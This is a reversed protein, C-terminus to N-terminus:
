RLRRVRILREGQDIADLVDMGSLVHGVVPDGDVALDPRYGTLLRWSGGVTDGGQAVLTVASARLRVPAGRRRPHAQLPGDRARGPGRSARRPRPRAHRGLRRRRLGRGGGRALGHRRLRRQGRPRPRAARAGARGERAARDRAIRATDRSSCRARRRAARKEREAVLAAERDRQVRVMHQLRNVTPEDLGPREALWGWLEAARGYHAGGTLTNAREQAARGRLSPDLDSQVTELLAAAADHRNLFRLAQAWVIRDRATLPEFNAIWRFNDFVAATTDADNKRSKKREEALLRVHSHAEDGRRTLEEQHAILATWATASFGGPQHPDELGQLVGWGQTDALGPALDRGGGKVNVGAPWTSSAVGGPEYWWILAHVAPLPSGDKAGPLLSLPLAMEWSCASTTRVARAVVQELVRDHGMEQQRRVIIHPRDHEVADYEISLTGPTLVGQPAQAPAFYLLARAGIPWAHDCELALLLTGARQKLYASVGRGLEVRAADDWEARQVNGDMGDKTLPIGAPVVVTTESADARAVPPFTALALFTAFLLLRPRM